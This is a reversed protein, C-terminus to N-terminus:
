ERADPERRGGVSRLGAGEARARGGVPPAVAHSLVAEVRALRDLVGRLDASLEHARQQAAGVQDALPKLERDRQDRLEKLSTEGQEVRQLVRGLQVLIAALTVAVGVLSVLLSPNM